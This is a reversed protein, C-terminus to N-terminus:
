NTASENNASENNASKNSALKNYPYSKDQFNTTRIRVTLLDSKHFLYM